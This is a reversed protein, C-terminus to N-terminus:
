APSATVPVAGRAVDAISRLADMSRGARRLIAIMRVTALLFRALAAADADAALEGAGQARAFREAIRAESAATRAAVAAGLPGDRGVEALTSAILCGAPRDEAALGERQRAFLADLGVALPEADLADLLRAERAAAYREFVTLFLAEKSRYANYLSGRRLGTARELDEISTAAYGRDWFVRTAADLVRDEDFRRKGVM